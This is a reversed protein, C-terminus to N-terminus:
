CEHLPTLVTSLGLPCHQLFTLIAAFFDPCAAFFDPNASVRARSFCSFCSFFARRHVLATSM